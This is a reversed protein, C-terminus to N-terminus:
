FFFRYYMKFFYHFNSLVKETEGQFILLISRGCTILLMFLDQSIPNKYWESLFTKINKYLTTDLNERFIQFKQFSLINFIQCDQM